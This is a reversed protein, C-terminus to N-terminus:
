GRRSPWAGKGALDRGRALGEGRARLGRGAAGVRHKCPRRLRAGPPCRSSGRGGTGWTGGWELQAPPQTREARKREANEGRPGRPPPRRGVLARLQHCKLGLGARGSGGMEWSRATASPGRQGELPGWRGAPAGRRPTGRARAPSNNEFYYGKGLLSCGAGAAM